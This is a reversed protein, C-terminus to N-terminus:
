YISTFCEDIFEVVIVTKSPDNSNGEEVWQMLNDTHTLALDNTIGVVRGPFHPHVANLYIKMMEETQWHNQTFTVMANGHEVTYYDRWSTM